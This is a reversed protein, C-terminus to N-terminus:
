LNSWDIIGHNELELLDSPNTYDGMLVLNQVSHRANPVLMATPDGASDSGLFHVAEGIRQCTEYEGTRDLYPLRGYSAM